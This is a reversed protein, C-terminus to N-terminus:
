QLAVNVRYAILISMSSYVLNNLCAIIIVNFSKIRSKDIPELPM